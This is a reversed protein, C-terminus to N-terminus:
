RKTQTEKLIDKLKTDHASIVSLIADIDETSTKIKNFNEQILDSTKTIIGECVKTRLTMLDLYTNNLINWVRRNVFTSTDM